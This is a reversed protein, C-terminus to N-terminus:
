NETVLEPLKIVGRKVLEFFSNKCAIVDALADHAGEFGTGFLHTHLEALTPWKYGYPGPLCCVNTGVEKTCIRTRSTLPCQNWKRLMEAGLVNYDYSMNHAVLVDCYLLDYNYLDLIMSMPLGEQQNKETSYGNELWFKEAPIVWSDPYILHKQRRLVNGERDTLIWGLQIIRPWNELASMPARWNKPLGTTETDFFLINM